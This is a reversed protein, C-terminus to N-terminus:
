GKRVNIVMVVESVGAENSARVKVTYTGTRDYAHARMNSNKLGTANSTM